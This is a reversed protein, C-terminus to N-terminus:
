VLALEAIRHVLEFLSYFPGVSFASLSHGFNAVAQCLLYAFIVRGILLFIRGLVRGDSVLM